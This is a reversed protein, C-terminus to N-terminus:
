FLDDFLEKIYLITNKVIDIDGANSMEISVFNLYDLDRLAGLLDAHLQRKKVPVLGPESIHVHNVLDINDKVLQISEDNHILTGVDINVRIGSSDIMKCLEFAQATMNIFNTNYIPPNPEIAICTGREAAYGGLRGFFDSAIALCDEAERDEPINRNKPCGFVLNRCGIAQAFDLGKKTYDILSARDEDTGFISETVGYWISQMSSVTLNYDDRLRNSFRKAGVLDDYPSAPFIRTPAIELGAFGCQHLFGYMEEDFEASWAINSISLKM